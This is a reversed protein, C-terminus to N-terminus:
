SENNSLYIRYYVFQILLSLLSSNKDIFSKPLPYVTQNPINRFFVFLLRGDGDLMKGNGQHDLNPTWPENGILAGIELGVNFLAPM